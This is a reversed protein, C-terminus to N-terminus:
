QAKEGAITMNVVEASNGGDCKDLNKLKDAPITAKSEGGDKVKACTREATVKEGNKCTVIFDWCVEVESKGETQKISCDASNTDTTVCAVTAHVSERCGASGLALVLVALMTGKM